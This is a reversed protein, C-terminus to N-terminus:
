GRYPFPEVSIRHFIPEAAIVAHVREVVIGEPGDALPHHSIRQSNLPIFGTELLEDKLRLGIRRSDHCRRLAIVIRHVASDAAGPFYVAFDKGVPSGNWGVRGGGEIQRCSRWCRHLFASLAGALRFADSEDLM